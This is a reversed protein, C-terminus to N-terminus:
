RAMTAIQVNDRFLQQLKRGTTLAVERSALDNVLVRNVDRGRGLSAPAVRVKFGNGQLASSVREAQAQAPTSLLLLAFQGDDQRLVVFGEDLQPLHLEQGRSIVDVDTLNPNALLMLDLITDSAQGYTRSAIKSVSDGDQVVVTQHRPLALSLGGGGRETQPTDNVREAPQQPSDKSPAVALGDFSIFVPPRAPPLERPAAAAVVTEPDAEGKRSSDDPVGRSKDQKGTKTEGLAELVDEIAKQLDSLDRKPNTETEAAEESSGVARDGEEPARPRVSGAEGAYSRGEYSDPEGVAGRHGSDRDRRVEGEDQRWAASDMPQRPNDAASNRQPLPDLEAARRELAPPALRPAPAGASTGPQIVQLSRRSAVRDSEESDDRLLLSRGASLLGILITIVVVAVLGLQSVNRSRLAPESAGLSAVTTESESAPRQQTILDAAAENVVDAGVRKKGLAYGIVLANDCVVNIIRPIGTSIEFIRDEAERTFIRPDAAGAASLRAQVYETLEERTLPLLRAGVAVRQRLQRLNPNDLKLGLEPQGSLVIQLIKEKATELNSLLRLDELVSYELDQAEDILLAVNRGHRLEELLFGNLRQLMYLRKGNHIPLDFEGFIYELIEDFTVNTNFVFVTRTNADLDDLLKKLLTTKGTGAEGILTIFGKRQSIGYHLSALAERYRANLYLFKPDSTVNFPREHLEYFDCYM